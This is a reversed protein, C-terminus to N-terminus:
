MDVYRLIETPSPQTHLRQWMEQLQLRCAALVPEKHSAVAHMAIFGRM